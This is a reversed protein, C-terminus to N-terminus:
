NVGGVLVFRSQKPTLLIPSLDLSSETTRVLCDQRTKDTIHVLCSVDAVRDLKTIAM